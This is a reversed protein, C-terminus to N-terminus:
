ISLTVEGDPYVFLIVIGKKRARRVTSWTGSRRQEEKTEPCAILLSSNDVIDQNRELPDKPQYIVDSLCKARDCTMSEINSPHAYVRGKGINKVLYVFTSDAGVCAGHHIDCELRHNIEEELLKRLAYEQKLTLGNRSGTFGIGTGIGPLMRAM